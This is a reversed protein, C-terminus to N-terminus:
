RVMVMALSAPKEPPPGVVTSIAIMMTTLCRGELMKNAAHIIIMPVAFTTKRKETKERRKTSKM